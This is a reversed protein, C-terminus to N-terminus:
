ASKKIIQSFRKGEEDEFEVKFSNQCFVHRNFKIIKLNDSGEHNYLKGRFLYAENLPFFAWEAKSLYGEVLLCIIIGVALSGFVIFLNFVFILGELFDSM